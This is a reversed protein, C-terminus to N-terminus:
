GAPWLDEPERGRTEPVLWCAAMILAAPLFTVLAAVAFRNGLDAVAGFVLLGAVAGGVGAALWWGTVSARVSTPFLENVLAGAAPAFVASAMVGLVYGGVLAPASGTYALVGFLALAVMALACAPRRGYHDALWRGAFLGALGTFGAAVVMAATAYGPLHVITQAYLFVFGTNPVTIASAAFSVLAIVALRRRFKRGVAGLVPLPAPGAAAAIAFRDPEVLSRGILPLAALPLAALAFVGRFGLAGTALSHLIAILGGGLGSGAAVLAVAKARDAAGTQEAATVTALATTTSLLPRACAFVAVFWWYGPSAAAGITTALGLGATALLVRRRGLRDALGAIPLSALAALQIVALGIGIETGSLGTKDAITAGHVVQGFSRAVDGLTAVVGFQGFGSALAIVALGIVAPDHWRRLRPSRATRPPQQAGPRATVM